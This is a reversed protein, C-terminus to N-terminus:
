FQMFPNTKKEHGITSDQADGYAHGPFVKLSAELGALRKLSGQMKIESGGPLDSRGCAGVFLTDGTLLLDGILICQSGETHGPTHLFSMEMEGIKLAYGERTEVIRGKLHKLYKAEKEHVYVPGKIKETVEDVGNSHDFHTHTLIAAVIKMNDKEAEKFIADVDWAPDVVACEKTKEDGILYCFNQMYGVPIQRFYVNKKVM